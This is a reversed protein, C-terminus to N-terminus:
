LVFFSSGDPLITKTVSTVSNLTVTPDASYTTLLVPTTDSNDIGVNLFANLLDPAQPPHIAGNSSPHGNVCGFFDPYNAQSWAHMYIFKNGNNSEMTFSLDFTATCTGAAQVGVPTFNQILIDSAACQAKVQQVAFVLIASVALYRLATKM